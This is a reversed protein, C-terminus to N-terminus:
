WVQLEAPLAWRHLTPSGHWSPHEWLDRLAGPGSMAYRLTLKGKPLKKATRLHLARADSSAVKIESIAVSTGGEDLLEFGFGDAAGLPNGSDIVLDETAAVIVEIENNQGAIREALLPVPCQWREGTLVTDLAASDMAAQALSGDRTLRGFGDKEFMYGPAPVVLKSRGSLMSLYWQESMRMGLRDCRLLIVPEGLGHKHVEALLADVLHGMTAVFSTPDTTIDEPGYDVTIALIRAPKELSSAAKVLGDIVKSLNEMAPGSLLAEITTSGDTEARAVVLPLARSAGHRASVVADAFDSIQTAEALTQLGSEAWNSVTGGGGSAGLEDAPAVVHHRYRATAEYADSASPGGITLLAMLPGPTDAIVDGGRAPVRYSRSYNFPSLCADFVIWDGSQRPNWADIDGLASTDSVSASQTGLGLRAAIDAIVQDSLRLVLGTYDWAIVDGNRARLIVDNSKHRM